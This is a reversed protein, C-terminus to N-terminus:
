DTLNIFYYFEVVVEEVIIIRSTGKFFFFTVIKVAFIFFVSSDYFSRSALSIIINPYKETHQTETNKEGCLLNEQQSSFLSTM